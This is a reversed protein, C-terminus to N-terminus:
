YLKSRYKDFNKEKCLIFYIGELIYAIWIYPCIIYLLFCIIARVPKGLYFWHIGAYGFLIALIGALIKSKPKLSTKYESSPSTEALIEPEISKGSPTEAVSISDNNKQFEPSNDIHYTPITNNDKESNQNVTVDPSSILKRGCKNCFKMGDKLVAGCNKCTM